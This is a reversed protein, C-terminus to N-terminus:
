CENLMKRINAHNPNAGLRPEYFLEDTDKTHPYGYREIYACRPMFSTLRIKPMYPSGMYWIQFVNGSDLLNGCPGTINQRMPTRPYREQFFGYWIQIYVHGGNKYHMHFQKESKWDRGGWDHVRSRCEIKTLTMPIMNGEVSKFPFLIVTGLYEMIIDEVDKGLDYLTTTTM